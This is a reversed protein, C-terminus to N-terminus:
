ACFGLAMQEAPKQEAQMRREAEDLTLARYVGSDESRGCIEAFGLQCLETVRPRITLISIGTAFALEDTTCAGHDHLATWVTQRMGCIWSRRREFSADRIQAPTLM